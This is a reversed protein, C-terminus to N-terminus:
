EGSEHLYKELMKALRNTYKAAAYSSGGGIKIREVVIKGYNSTSSTSGVVFFNRKIFKFYCAPYVNCNHDLNQGGNGSAVVITSRQSLDYLAEYEQQSLLDGEMSINIFDVRKMKMAGVLREMNFGSARFNHESDFVKISYICTKNIDLGDIIIDIVNSGHNVPSEDWPTKINGIAVPMADKCYWKKNIRRSAGTDIVMVAIRNDAIQPLTYSSLLLLTM